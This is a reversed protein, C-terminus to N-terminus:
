TYFDPAKDKTAVGTSQYHIDVYHIFPDPVGGGSVTMNNANLGGRMIIVGDPELDDSDIQSGSPSSASLQIESLIHQYQTTSATGTITGSVSAPFPAQNHGKAYSAEYEFTVTGGTVFTGTHSWHFHLFIDTGAVYDHPIHFKFYEEDGVGFQYDRLTDRYVAFTPKSGGTNRAFVDGLLDQWGFTPTTNDVKIGNGSAKPLSINGGISLKEQPSVLGVGVEGTGLITIADIANDAQYFVLAGAKRGTTIDWRKGGTGNDDLVIRAGISGGDGISTGAQLFFNNGGDSVKASTTSGTNEVHFDHTPIAVGIGVHGDSGRVFLANPVGFGEVRFDTNADGGENFIVNGANTTIASNVTAKTISEIYLGYNNALVGTLAPTEFAYLAYRTGTGSAVALTGGGFGGGIYSKTNAITVNPHEYIGFVTLGASADIATGFNLVLANTAVATLTGSTNIIANPLIDGALGIHGSTSIAAKVAGGSDLWETLNEASDDDTTQIALPRITATAAAIVNRASALPTTIISLPHDDDGLGLLGGHDRLNHANGDGDQFYLSNDSQTWMKGHDAIAVPAGPREKFAWDQGVVLTGDDDLYL